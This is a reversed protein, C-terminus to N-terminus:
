KIETEILKTTDNGFIDVVKVMIKYKGKKSYTHEESVLSLDSNSKTRFTQWENHFTDERFNWDIAWYDIYDVSNKIKQKSEEPVSEPNPIVFNKIKIKLSDKSKQLEVDLYALEFFKINGSEVARKDMVERPILRLSLIVGDEKAENEVLEHMGNEFEWGLIDIKKIKNEKCEILCDKIENWTVPADISGVHIIKDSIKGHLFRFGEIFKAHYLEVIFKIYDVREKGLNSIQWQQREYKGLNLVEFPKRIINDRKLDIDLIRKRMTHISFKGIDATIWKRGLKEAVIATTGSGGFFDAVLDEKNSCANIVRNLLQESNETPYGTSFSYGPIDTWNSDLLEEEGTLYQPTGKIEKGNLDTYCSKENVRIRGEEIMKDITEQIFTWHRGNPPYLKKGFIIREPPHRVGPSHMNIWVQEKTRKKYLPNFLWSDSKSYWFLSDTAVNLQKSPFIKKTRNIIIENRFNERGFVEDLILKVYHSYHYDFRVVINGDEALLEKMLLLREYIWQCFSNMGDKWINRYAVEEIISPEKIIDNGNPVKITIPMNSGTFFPPDIYILRIKGKLSELNISPDGNVLSALIYKNDGWIIKNVWKDEPSSTLAKQKDRPKNITEVKQFPLPTKEVAKKEGVELKDYKEKWILEAQFGEDVM